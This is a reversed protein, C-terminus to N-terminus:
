GFKRHVAQKVQAPAARVHFGFGASPSLFAPRQQM